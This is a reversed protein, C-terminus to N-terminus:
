QFDLNAPSEHVIHRYYVWRRLRLLYMRLCRITYSPPGYGGFQAFHIYRFTTMCRAFASNM